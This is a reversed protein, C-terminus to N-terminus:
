MQETKMQTARRTNKKHEQNANFIRVENLYSGNIIIISSVESNFTHAHSIM